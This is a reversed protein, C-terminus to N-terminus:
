RDLIREKLQLLVDERNDPIVGFICVGPHSRVRDLFPTKKPKIVGLVPIDGDLIEMVKEQFDFAESEMFGLEDMIILSCQKAEELLSGGVRNFIEPFSEYTNAPFDRHVARNKPNCDKETGDVPLLFIDSSGDSTYNGIVSRFGGVKKPFARVIEQIITSKGIRIDGTLFYHM